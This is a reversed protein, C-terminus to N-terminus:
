PISSTTSGFSSYEPRDATRALGVLGLVLGVRAVVARLGSLVVGPDLRAPLENEPRVGEPGAHRAECRAGSYGTEARRTEMGITPAGGGGRKSGFAVVDNRAPADGAGRATLKPGLLRVPRADLVAVGQPGDGGGKCGTSSSRARSGRRGITRRALGAPAFPARAGGRRATSLDPRARGHQRALTRSVVMHDLLRVDVEDLLNKVRSTLTM